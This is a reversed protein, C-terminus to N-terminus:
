EVSVEERLLAAEQEAVDCRDAKLQAMRRQETETELHATLRKLREESQMAELRMSESLGDFHKKQRAIEYSQTQLTNTMSEMNFLCDEYKRQLNNLEHRLPFYIDGARNVHIYICVYHLSPM